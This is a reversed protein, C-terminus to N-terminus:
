LFKKALSRPIATGQLRTRVTVEDSNSIYVGYYDNNLFVLIIIFRWAMCKSPFPPYKTAICTKTFSLKFSGILVCIELLTTATSTIHILYHNKDDESM